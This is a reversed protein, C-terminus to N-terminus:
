VELSTSPLDNILQEVAACFIFQSGTVSDHVASDIRGSETSLLRQLNRFDLGIGPDSLFVRYRCGGSEIEGQHPTRGRPMLILMSGFLWAFGFQWGHQCSKESFLQM